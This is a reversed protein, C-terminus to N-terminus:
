ELIRITAKWYATTINDKLLKSYNNISVEYVNTIKDAPILTMFSNKIKKADSILLSQFANTALKLKINKVTAYLDEDFALLGEHQLLTNESKFGYNKNEDVTDKNKHELFFSEM